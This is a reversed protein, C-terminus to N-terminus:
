GMILQECWFQQRRWHGRFQEFATTAIAWLDVNITKAFPKNTADLTVPPSPRIADLGNKHGQWLVVKGNEFASHLGNRRSPKLLANM